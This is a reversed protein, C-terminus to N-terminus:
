ELQLLYVTARYLPHGAGSYGDPSLVLRLGAASGAALIAPLLNAM